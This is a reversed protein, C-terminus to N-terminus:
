SRGASRSRSRRSERWWRFLGLEEGATYSAVFLGNWCLRLAAHATWRPVSKWPHKKRRGMLRLTFAGHFGRKFRGKILRRKGLDKQTRRHWILAEHIYAISWGSDKVRQEWEYEDGGPSLSADFLGASEFVDRRVAMNCSYVWDIQEEDQGRDLEPDLTKLSCRSCLRPAKGEFRLLVRGGVCGAKPYRGLGDILSLLWGPPAEIDDDVFCIPDGRSIRVGTNRAANVGPQDSRSYRIANRPHAERLEELLSELDDSEGDDVIIIESREPPFDQALLSRVTDALM